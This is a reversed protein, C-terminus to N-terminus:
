PPGNTRTTPRRPCPGRLRDLGIQPYEGLDGACGAPCAIRAVPKPCFISRCSRPGPRWRRRNRAPLPSSGNGLRAGFAAGGSRTQSIGPPEDRSTARLLDHVPQALVDCGGTVLVDRPHPRELQGVAPALVAPRGEADKELRRDAAQQRHGPVHEARATPDPLRLHPRELSRRACACQSAHLMTKSAENSWSTSTRKEGDGATRWTSSRSNQRPPGIFVGCTTAWTGSSGPSRSLHDAM